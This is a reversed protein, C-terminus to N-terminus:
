RFSLFYPPVTFCNWDLQEFGAEQMLYNLSLLKSVPLSWLDSDFLYIFELTWENLSNKNADSSCLVRLKEILSLLM